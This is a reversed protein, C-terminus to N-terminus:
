LKKSKRQKVDYEYQDSEIYKNISNITVNIKDIVETVLDEDACLTREKNSITTRPIEVKYTCDFSETESVYIITFFINSNKPLQIWFCVSFINAEEDIIQYKIDKAKPFSNIIQKFINKDM